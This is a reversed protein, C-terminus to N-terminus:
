RTPSSPPILPSVSPLHDREPPHRRRFRVLVLAMVGALVISVTALAGAVGLANLIVDGYSVEPAPEKIVTVMFADAPRPQTQM